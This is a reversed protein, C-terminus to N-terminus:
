SRPQWRFRAAAVVAAVVAWALIVALSQWALTGSFADRSADVLHRIPFVVAITEAVAPLEIGFAFVESIFALPMFTALAIAPVTKANPALAAIVLGLATLCAIGAAFVVVLPVV